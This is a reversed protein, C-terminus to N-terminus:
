RLGCLKSRLAAPGAKNVQPAAVREVHQALAAGEVQDESVGLAPFPFAEVPRDGRQVGAAQEHDVVHSGARFPAGLLMGPLGRDPSGQEGARQEGRGLEAVARADDEAGAAGLLPARRNHLTPAPSTPSPPSASPRSWAATTPTIGTVYREM